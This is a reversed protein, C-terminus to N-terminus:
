DMFPFRMTGDPAVTAAKPVLGEKQVARIARRLTREKFLVINKPM